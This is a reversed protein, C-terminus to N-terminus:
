GTEQRAKFEMRYDALKQFAIADRIERVMDLYFYLNHYTNLMASLIENAHFLHRLYARTYRRCVRCRCAPDIPQQDSKYQANKIVIHGTRTFLWGNRGNRTPMVCDFMDVGL